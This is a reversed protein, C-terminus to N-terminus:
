SRFRFANPLHESSWTLPKTDLIRVMKLLTKTLIVRIAGQSDDGLGGLKPNEVGMVYCTSITIDKIGGADKIQVATEHANAFVVRDVDSARANPLLPVVTSM